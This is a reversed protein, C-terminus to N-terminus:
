QFLFSNTSSPKHTFRLPLTLLLHKDLFCVRRAVCRLCIIGEIELSKGDVAPGRGPQEPFNDQLWQRVIHADKPYECGCICPPPLPYSHDLICCAYQCAHLGWHRLWM